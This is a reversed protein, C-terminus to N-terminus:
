RRPKGRFVVGLVKPGANISIAAGIPVKMECPYGFEKEMEAGMQDAVEKSTGYLLIYPTKPIMESKIKKMLAPIIAKEGRVKGFTVADGDEFAILPKLGMLEGVFAAACSVRGSKKVYELTYPAFIVRCCNFWDELYAVIEGPQMGKEAKKAAEIVPYGYGMSYTQSDVIDIEFDGEAEPHEEFFQQKAMHANGNTSSGKANISVYIVNTYGAGFLEEYLELFQITTYQATSPTKPSTELIQYFEEPTFDQREVFSQDGVAISFPLIRIHYREELDKPIDCASDTVIQIKRMACSNMRGEM